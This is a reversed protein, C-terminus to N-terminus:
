PAAWMCRDNALSCIMGDPCTKGGSCDLTCLPPHDETGCTPVANGTAPIPCTKDASCYPACVSQQEDGAPSQTAMCIVVGPPCDVEVSVECSGYPDGGPNGGNHCLTSCNMWESCVEQDCGTVCSLYAEDADACSAACEEPTINVECAALHQCLAECVSGPGSGTSASSTSGTGGAGGTGGTGPPNSSGCGLVIAPVLVLAIKSLINM